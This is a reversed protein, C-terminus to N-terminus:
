QGSCVFHLLEVSLAASGWTDPAAYIKDNVINEFM